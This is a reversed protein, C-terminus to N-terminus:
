KKAPLPPNIIPALRTLRGDPGIVVRHPLEPNSCASDLQTLLFGQGTKWTVRARDPCRPSANEYGGDTYRDDGDTYVGPEVTLAARFPASQLRIRYASAPQTYLGCHYYPTLDTAIELAQAVIGSGREELGLWYLTHQEGQTATVQWLKLGRESALRRLHFSVSASPIVDPPFDPPAATPPEQSPDEVLSRVVLQRVDPASGPRLTVLLFRATYNAGPAGLLYRVVGRAPLRLLARVEGYGELAPTRQMWARDKEIWQAFEGPTLPQGSPAVYADQRSLLYFTRSADGSDSRCLYDQRAAQWDCQTSGGGANANDPAGCAGGGELTSCDLKLNAQPAGSRLDVLLLTQSSAQTNVGMSRSTFSLRFLPLASDPAALHAPDDSFRAHKGDEDLEFRTVDAALSGTQKDKVVLTWWSEAGSGLLRVYLRIETNTEFNSYQEAPPLVAHPYFEVREFGYRRADFPGFTIPQVSAPLEDASPRAPLRQFDFDSARTLTARVYDGCSFTTPPLVSDVEQARALGSLLLLAALTLRSARM